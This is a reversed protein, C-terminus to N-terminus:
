RSDGGGAPLAASVARADWLRPRKGEFLYKAAIM